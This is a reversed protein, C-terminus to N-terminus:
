VVGSTTIGDFLQYSFSDSDTFSANGTYIFSGNANLTLSGRQVATLVQITMAQNLNPERDNKLIGDAAIVNISLAGDTDYFDDAALPVINTVPRAGFDRGTINGNGVVLVHAAVSPSRYVHLGTPTSLFLEDGDTSMSMQYFNGTAALSEFASMTYGATMQLSINDLNVNLEGNLASVEFVLQITQGGVSQMFATADFFRPTPGTQTPDNLNTSFVAVIQNGNADLIRVRFEQNPDIFPVSSRIRDVWGLTASTVGTPVVISQALLQTGLFTQNALLDFGGGMPATPNSAGNPDFTGDNGVWQAGGTVTTSWGDTDGSEFTGNIIYQAVSTRVSIRDLITVPPPPIQSSTLTYRVDPRLPDFAVGSLSNDQVVGAAASFVDLAADYKFTPNSGTTERFYAEARDGRRGVRTGGAVRGGSGTGLSDARISIIDTALDIERVPNFPDAGTNRYNTTFLAKGNNLIAIDFSGSESGVRDFTLNSVAGSDPDVKRIMSQTTGPEQEAVYIASGDPALDIGGLQIGVQFPPLFTMSRVNLRLIQGDNTSIYELGRTPDFVHDVVSQLAAGPLSVTPLNFFTHTTLSSVPFSQESGPEPLLRIRRTGNAVGDLLYAGTGDSIATAETLDLAANNNADIYVTRGILPTEILPQYAGDGNVDNFVVGTISGAPALRVELTEHQLKRWRARAAQKQFKRSVRNRLWTSRTPM